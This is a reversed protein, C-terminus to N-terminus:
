WPACGRLRLRCTFRAMHSAGSPARWWMRCGNGSSGRSLCSTTATSGCATLLLMATGIGLILGAAASAFGGKLAVSLMALVGTAVADGVIGGLSSGLIWSSPLPFLSVLGCGLVVAGCWAALRRVVKDPTRHAFLRVTWAIPVIVLVVSGLGLLQMLEDAVIAGPLGFWNQPIADVANNLSPDDVSWTALSFGVFLTGALLLFGALELLRHRVFQRLAGPIARDDTDLPQAHAASKARM